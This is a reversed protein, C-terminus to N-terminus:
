NPQIFADEKKEDQWECEQSPIANTETTKIYKHKAPNTQAGAKHRQLAIAILSSKGIM